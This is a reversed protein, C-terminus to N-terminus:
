QCHSWRFVTKSGGATTAHQFTLPIRNKGSFQAKLVMHKLNNNKKKRAKKALGHNSDVAPGWRSCLARLLMQRAKVFCTLMGSQSLWRCRAPTSPQLLVPSFQETDSKFIVGTYFGPHELRATKGSHMQSRPKLNIVSFAETRPESAKIM